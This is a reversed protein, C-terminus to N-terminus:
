NALAKTSNYEYIRLFDILKDTANRLGSKNFETDGIQFWIDYLFSDIERSARTLDTETENTLDHDPNDILQIILRSIM